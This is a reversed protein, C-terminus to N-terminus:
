PDRVEDRDLAPVSVPDAAAAAGVLPGHEGDEAVGAGQEYAGAGEGVLYCLVVAGGGSLNVTMGLATSM